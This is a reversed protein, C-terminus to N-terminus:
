MVALLEQEFRELGAGRAVHQLRACIGVDDVGTASCHAPLREEVRGCHRREDTVVDRSATAVLLPEVDQSWTLELDQLQDGLSLGRLLDGRREEDADLRDVAM